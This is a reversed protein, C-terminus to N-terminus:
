QTKKKIYPDQSDQYDQQNPKTSSAASSVTEDDSDNAKDLIKQLFIQRMGPDDKLLELIEREKQSLGKAQAKTSTM